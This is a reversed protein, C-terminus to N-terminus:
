QSGRNSCAEFIRATNPLRSRRPLRQNLINKSGAILLDRWDPNIRNILEIKKERPGAKLQKERRIAYLIDNTVECYVLKHTKYKNTFISGVGSKHEYIRRAMNNTVGVYLVTNWTNTLIYIWYQKRAPM